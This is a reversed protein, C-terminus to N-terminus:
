SQNEGVRHQFPILIEATWNEGSFLTFVWQIIRNLLQMEGQEKEKVTNEGTTNDPSFLSTIGPEMVPSPASMEGTTSNQEASPMLILTTRQANVSVLTVSLVLVAMYLVKTKM